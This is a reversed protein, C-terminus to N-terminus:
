KKKSKKSQSAKKGRRKSIRYYVSGGTIGSSGDGRQTYAIARKVRSKSKAMKDIKRAYSGRKRKRASAAQAKKLAAKRKPTMVYRAM